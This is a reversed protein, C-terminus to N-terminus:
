DAPFKQRSDQRVAQKAFQGLGFLPKYFHVFKRVDANSERHNNKSQGAEHGGLQGGLRGVVLGTVGM